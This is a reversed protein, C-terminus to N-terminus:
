MGRQKKKHRRCLEDCLNNKKKLLFISNLASKPLIVCKQEIKIMFILRSPAKCILM